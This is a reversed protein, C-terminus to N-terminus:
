HNLASWEDQRTSNTQAPKHAFHHAAKGTHPFTHSVTGVTVSFWVDTVHKENVSM